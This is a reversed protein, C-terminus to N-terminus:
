KMACLYKFIILTIVIQSKKQSPILSNRSKYTLGITLLNVVCSIVYIFMM